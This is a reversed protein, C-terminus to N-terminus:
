WGTRQEWWACLAQEKLEKAEALQLPLRNELCLSCTRTSLARKSYLHDRCRGQCALECLGYAHGQPLSHHSSVGTRCKAAWLFGIVVKKM